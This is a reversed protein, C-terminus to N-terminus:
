MEEVAIGTNPGSEAAKGPPHGSARSIEQKQIFSNLFSCFEDFMEEPETSSPQTITIEIENNENLRVATFIIRIKELAAFKFITDRVYVKRESIQIQRWGKTSYNNDIALCVVHGDRLRQRIKLLSNGGRRIMDLNEKTGLIKWENTGTLLVASPKRGQDYLWRLSLFHLYFHGTVAITPEDTILESGIVKAEIDFEVNQFTLSHLFAVLIYEFYSGLAHAPQKINTFRQLFPALFQTLRFAYRFRKEKRVLAFLKCVLILVCKWLLPAM